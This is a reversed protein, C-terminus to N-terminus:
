LGATKVLKNSIALLLDANDLKKIEIFDVSISVMMESESNISHASIKEM